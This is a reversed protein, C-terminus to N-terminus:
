ADFAVGFWGMAGLGDFVYGTFRGLVMRHVSQHGLAGPLVGFKIQISKAHIELRTWFFKFRPIPEFIALRRFSGVCFGVGLIKFKKASSGGIQPPREQYWGKARFTDSLTTYRNRVTKFYITQLQSQITFLIKHQKPCVKSVHECTITRSAIVSLTSSIDALISVFWGVSRCAYVQLRWKGIVWRWAGFFPRRQWAM